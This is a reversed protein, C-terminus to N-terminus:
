DAHDDGQAAEVKGTGGCDACAMAMRSFGNVVVVKGTGECPKCRSAEKEAEAYARQYAERCEQFAVANGGPQDPHHQKALERWRTKIQAPTADEQLGLIDLDSM